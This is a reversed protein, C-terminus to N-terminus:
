GATFKTLDGETARHPELSTDWKRELFRNEPESIGTVDDVFFVVREPALERLRHVAAAPIVVYDLWEKNQFAVIGAQGCRLQYAIGSSVEMRLLRKEDLGKHWFPQGSGTRVKNDM